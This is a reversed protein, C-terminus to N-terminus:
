TRVTPLRYNANLQFLGVKTDVKEENGSIVEVTEELQEWHEQKLVFEVQQIVHKIASNASNCLRLCKVTM